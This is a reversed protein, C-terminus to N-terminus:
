LSLSFAQEAVFHGIEFLAVFAVSIFPKVFINTHKQV